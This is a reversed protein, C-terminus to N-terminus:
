FHVFHLFRSNHESKEFVKADKHPGANCQCILEMHKLLLEVMGDKTMAPGKNPIDIKAILDRLDGSRLSFYLVAQQMKSMKGNDTQAPATCMRSDTLSGCFFKSKFTATITARPDTQTPFLKAYAGEIVKEDYTTLGALKLILSV